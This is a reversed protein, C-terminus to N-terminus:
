HPNSVLIGDKLLNETALINSLRKWQSKRAVSAPSLPNISFVIAICILSWPIAKFSAGPRVTYYICIGLIWFALIVGLYRIETFGYDSIRRQLALLLLVSLPILLPFFFRWFTKAWPTLPEVKALPWILLGTLGGVASLVFVPLGVWRNPCSWSFLIKLSYVFLIAFYIVVLPLLIFKSFFHIWKPYDLQLNMREEMDPFAGLFLFTNLVFACFFWIRGINEEDLDLGFMKDISILALVVGGFFVASFFGSLLFRTFITKNYEWLAVDPEEQIFAPIVAIALHVLVALMLLRILFTNLLEAGNYFPIWLYLGILCLLGLVNVPVFAWSLKAKLRGVLLEALIFLSIGFGGTIGLRIWRVRWISNYRLSDDIALSFSVACILGCLVAVPYQRTQRIFGQRLEEWFALGFLKM